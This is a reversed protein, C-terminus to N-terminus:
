KRRGKRRRERKARVKEEENGIVISVWNSLTKSSSAILSLTLLAAGGFVIIGIWITLVGGREEGEKPSFDM